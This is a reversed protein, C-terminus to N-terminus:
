KFAHHSTRSEVNLLLKRYALVYLGKKTHISLINMGLQRIRLRGKESEDVAKLQFDQVIESFQREALRYVGRSFSDHDLRRILGYESKYPTTDMRKCDILYNLIKLNSVHSFVKRYKDPNYRIDETLKRNIPYYTGEIVASTKISDIYIFLKQLTYQGLHFGEVILMRKEASVSKVAIWYNTTNQEKNRYEISLWKGEHIAKFIDRCIKDM